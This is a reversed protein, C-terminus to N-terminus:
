TREISSIVVESGWIMSPVPASGSEGTRAGLRSLSQSFQHNKKSKIEEQTLTNWNPSLLVMNKAQAMTTYADFTTKHKTFYRNYKSFGSSM